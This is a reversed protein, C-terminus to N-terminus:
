YRPWEVACINEVFALMVIQNLIALHHIQGGQGAGKAEEHTELRQTSM